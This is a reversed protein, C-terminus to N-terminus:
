RKLRRLLHAPIANARSPSPQDRHVTLDASKMELEPKPAHIVHTEQTLVEMGHCQIAAMLATPSNLCLFRM